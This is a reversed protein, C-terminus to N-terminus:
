LSQEKRRASVVDFRADLLRSSSIGEENFDEARIIGTVIVKYERPGIMFPQSGKVRYNGDVTREVIRTPVTRVSLEEKKPPASNPQPPPSPQGASPAQAGSEGQGDEDAQTAAGEGALNRQRARLREELRATLSKIVDVKATLQDRADGEITVGIPDGIMRMINQSFLYAGQGEMVWLSGAKADLASEEALSERTTRKYQRRVPPPMNPNESFQAVKPKSAEVASGSGGLFAKLRKGFGACGTLQAMSLFVLTLALSRM